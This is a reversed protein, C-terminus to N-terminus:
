GLSCYMLEDNDLIVSLLWNETSDRTVEQQSRYYNNIAWVTQTTVGERGTLATIGGGSNFISQIM